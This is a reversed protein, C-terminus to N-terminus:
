AGTYFFLSLFIHDHTGRPDSGLIATSAFALLLKGSVRFQFVILRITRNYIM